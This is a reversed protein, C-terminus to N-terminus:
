PLASFWITRNTYDYCAVYRTGGSDITENHYGSAVGTGTVLESTWADGSRRALKMDNNVGDFYFVQPKGDSGAFIAADAGVTAGADLVETTWAGPSGTALKLDENTVDQYAIAVSGASELLDPWQGVDASDDVIEFTYGSSGGTALRLAGYARDYFAIHETGDSSILIRAYEGADGAVTDSGDTPVYEEGEYLVAGTFSAGNWRALRLTGQGNDYHAIVPNKSADLAISAWYGADSRSGGGVDALGTTWTGDPTREAYKLTGNTSDQYGVWVIGDPSIVMSAYKGSDGPNLGNEDPYSDVEETAWTVDSGSVTGIAFALAGSTRDYYAIAPKGDPMKRMSLWSGIDHPDPPTDDTGIPDEPLIQQENCGSCGPLLLVASAALLTALARM